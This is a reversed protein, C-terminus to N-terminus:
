QLTITWVGWILVGFGSLTLMVWQSRPAERSKGSTNMLKNKKLYHYTQSVVAGTIFGVITLVGIGGKMSGKGIRKLFHTIESANMKLLWNIM